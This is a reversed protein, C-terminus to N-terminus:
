VRAGIAGERPAARLRGSRLLRRHHPAPDGGGRGVAAARADAGRRLRRFTIATGDAAPPAVACIYVSRLEALSAPEACIPCKSQKGDADAAAHFQLACPLCMVHGCQHMQPATFHDCLCIPCRLAEASTFRVARVSEWPLPFDPDLDTGRYDGPAMVFHFNAQTHQM